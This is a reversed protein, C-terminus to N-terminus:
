DLFKCGFTCLHALLLLTHLVSFSAASNSFMRHSKIASIINCWGSRHTHQTNTHTHQPLHLVQPPSHMAMLTVGLSTSRGRGWGDMGKITCEARHGTPFTAGDNSWCFLHTLSPPRSAEWSSCRDRHLTAARDILALGTICQYESSQTHAHADM